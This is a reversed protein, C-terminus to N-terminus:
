RNVHQEILIRNIVHAVLSNETFPGERGIQRLQEYHQNQALLALRADKDPQSHFEHRLEQHLRLFQAISLEVALDIKELQQASFGSETYRQLVRRGVTKWHIRLDQSDKTGIAVWGRNKTRGLFVLSEQQNEHGDKSQSLVLILQEIPLLKEARYTLQPGDITDAPSLEKPQSIASNSTASNTTELVAGVSGAVITDSARLLGLSFEPCLTFLGVALGGIMGFATTTRYIHKGLPGIQLSLWGHRCVYRLLDASYSGDPCNGQM